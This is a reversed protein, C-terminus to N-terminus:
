AELIRQKFTRAIAHVGTEYRSQEIAVLALALAQEAILEHQQAM